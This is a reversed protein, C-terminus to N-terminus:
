KVTLGPIMTPILVPTGAVGLQGNLNDGCVWVSGDEKIFANSYAVIGTSASKVGTISSQVPTLQEVLNGIGLQGKTNGGWVMVDGNDKVAIMHYVGAVVQKVGALGVDYPSTKSIKDGTGLQGNTNDGWTRVTGDELLAINAGSGAAIQKVGSLDTRETPITNAGRGFEFVRGDETLLMTVLAGTAIQKIRPLGAFLYPTNQQVADGLGLQGAIGRGWIYVKGDDTLAVTHSSGFSVQAFKLAPLIQTPSSLPGALGLQLNTATGWTFLRGDETIAASISRTSVVQKINTLGPVIYPSPKPLADGAGYEYKTNLGWANVIDASNIALGHTDDVSVQRAIVPQSINVKGTVDPSAQTIQASKENSLNKCNISFDVPGDPDLYNVKLVARYNNNGLYTVTADRGLIKVTTDKIDEISTFTVIIDNVASAMQKNVNDSEIHVNKVLPLIREVHANIDVTAVDTWKSPDVTTASSKIEITFDKGGFKSLDIDPESSPQLGYVVKLSYDHSTAGNSLPTKEGDTYSSDLYISPVFDELSIEIGKKAIGDLTTFSTQDSTDFSAYASSAGSLINARIESDTMSSPFLYIVGAEKLDSAVPVDWAVRITNTIKEASKGINNVTWQFTNVDGIAFLPVNSGMPDSAQDGDDKIEIAVATQSIAISGSSAIKNLNTRDSFYASTFGVIAKLGIALGVALIIFILRIKHKEKRTM